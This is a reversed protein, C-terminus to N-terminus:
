VVFSMDIKINDFIGVSSPISSQQYRPRRPRERRASRVNDNRNIHNKKKRVYCCFVTLCTCCVCTSAVVAIVVIILQSDSMNDWIMSSSTNNVPSNMPVPTTSRLLNVPNKVVPVSRELVVINHTQLTTQITDAQYSILLSEVKEPEVRVSTTVDIQNVLLRRGSTQSSGYSEIKVYMRDVYLSTAVSDLYTKRVQSNFEAMSLSLSLTFTIKSTTSEVDPTNIVATTSNVVETSTGNEESLPTTTINEDELATTSPPIEVVETSTDNNGSLPATTTNEDEPITTSNVVETSTDNEESRPTPTTNEDEPVMTSSPIDVVETSTDNEGSLPTTTTNEDEPVMTSPPIDVVETSTDNEGSLPATTTNEDEPVTTSPTAETINATTNTNIDPGQIFCSEARTSAEQATTYGEPCQICMSEYSKFSGIPCSLCIHTNNVCQVYHPLNLLVITSFLIGALHQKHLGSM